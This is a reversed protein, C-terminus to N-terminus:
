EMVEYPKLCRMRRALILLDVREGTVRAGKVVFFLGCRSDWPPVRYAHMQEGGHALARALRAM